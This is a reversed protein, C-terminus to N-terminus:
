RYARALVEAPTGRWYRWRLQWMLAITPWLGDRDWRRGSTVVRERLCAPTSLRKLRHSLDIDELFPQDAFGGVADWASRRLFMAQDGTAIASLRSRLNMMAAVMALGRSRGEIRVDFRGWVPGQALAGLILSDAQDPLQTDAHLFLLVEGRACAAGANMQRARGAPAQLVADAWETCHKPTGDDSGGDVVIVEAGRQRLPQLRRLAQHIGDAENLVPVIISLPPAAPVAAGTTM